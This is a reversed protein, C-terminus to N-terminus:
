AGMFKFVFLFGNKEEKGEEKAKQIEPWLKLKMCPKNIHPIRIYLAIMYLKYLFLNLEDYRFLMFLYIFLKKQKWKRDWERKITQNISVRNVHDRLVNSYVMAVAELAMFTIFGIIYPVVFACNEQFISQIHISNNHKKTSFYLTSSFNFLACVIVIIIVVIAVVFIFEVCRFLLVVVFDPSMFVFYIFFFIVSTVWVSCSLLAQHIMKGVFRPIFITKTMEDLSFYEFTSLLLCRIRCKCVCLYSMWPLIVNTNPKMKEESRYPLLSLTCNKLPCFVFCFHFFRFARCLYFFMYIHTFPCSLRVHSSLHRRCSHM